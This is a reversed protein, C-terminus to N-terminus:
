RMNFTRIFVESPPKEGPNYLHKEMNIPTTTTKEQQEQPLRSESHNHDNRNNNDKKIVVLIGFSDTNGNCAVSNCDSRHMKYLSSQLLMENLHVTGRVLIESNRM